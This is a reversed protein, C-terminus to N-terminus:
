TLLFVDILLAHIPHLQFHEVFCTKV